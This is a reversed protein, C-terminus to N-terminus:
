FSAGTGRPLGPRDDQLSLWSWQWCTQYVAPPSAWQYSSNQTVHASTSSEKKRKKRLFQNEDTAWYFGLVRSVLFLPLFSLITTHLVSKQSKWVANHCVETGTQQRLRFGPRPGSMLSWKLKFCFFFQKTQGCWQLNVVSPKFDNIM